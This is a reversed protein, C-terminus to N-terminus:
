RPTSQKSLGIAQLLGRPYSTNPYDGLGMARVARIVKAADTDEIAVTRVKTGNVVVDTVEAACGEIRLRNRTKSVSVVHVPGGSSAVRALLADLALPGDGAAVAEFGLATNLQAIAPSSLPFAEKLVPRWRQLGDANVTELQKIDLLRNRIKANADSVTSLLYTEESRQVNQVALAALRPEAAGFQQGFARWEWRSQIEGM